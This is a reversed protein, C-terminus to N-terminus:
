AKREMAERKAREWPMEADPVEPAQSNPAKAAFTDVREANHFIWKPDYLGKSQHWESARNGDIAAKLKEVTAGERLRTLTKDKRGDTFIWDPKQHVSQWHAWVQDALALLPYPTLEKKEKEKKARGGTSSENVVRGKNLRNAKNRKCAARYEAWAESWRKRLKKNFIKKSNRKSPSFQALVLPGLDPWQDGLRSMAALMAPDSPLTCDKAKWQIALLRIYAGEQASTMANIAPSSLWEDADFSFFDLRERKRSAKL